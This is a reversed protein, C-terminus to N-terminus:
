NTGPAKNTSDSNYLNRLEILEKQIRTMYISSLFDSDEFVGMSINEDFFSVCSLPIKEGRIDNIICYELNSFIYLMISSFLSGYEKELLINMTGILYKNYNVFGQSIKDSKSINNYEILTKIAQESLGTTKHIMQINSDTTQAETRGLLYDCSVNYYNAIKLLIEADPKREGSEYYGLSARSIGLDDSVKQLSNNGRLKRLKEPLCYDGIKTEHNM